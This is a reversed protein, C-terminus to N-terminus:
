CITYIRILRQRTVTFGEQDTVEVRITHKVGFCNNSYLRVTVLNGTALAGSQIGTQNTFWRIESPDVPENDTVDVELTVDKYWLGLANNSVM